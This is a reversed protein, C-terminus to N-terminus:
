RNVRELRITQNAGDVELRFFQLLDWGLLAPTSATKLEGIRIV